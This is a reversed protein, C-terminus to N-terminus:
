RVRPGTEHGARESLETVIRKMEAEPFPPTRLLAHFFLGDGVLRVYNALSPELIELPRAYRQCAEHVVAQLGEDAGHMAAILSRWLQDEAADSPEYTLYWRVLESPDSPARGIAEDIRDLVRQGFGALLAAKSPFHYILGGKSVGAQEAVADLTASSPGETLLIGEFTDLILERNSPRAM